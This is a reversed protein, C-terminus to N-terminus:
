RKEETEGVINIGNETLLSLAKEHNENKVAVGYGCGRLKKVAASRTLDANISNEKLIDIARLAYTVSSLVIIKM